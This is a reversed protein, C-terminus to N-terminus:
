NSQLEDKLREVETTALTLDNELKEYKFKWNGFSKSLKM